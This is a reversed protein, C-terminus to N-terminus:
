SDHTMVRTKKLNEYINHARLNCIMRINVVEQGGNIM